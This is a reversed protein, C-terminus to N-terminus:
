EHEHGGLEIVGVQKQGDITVRLRGRFDEDHAVAKCLEEDVIEFRSAKGAAEGEGPAAKLVYKVFQGDGFVQLVIEPQSAPVPQQAASDLLHVTVRHADYDHVLEAHYQGNDLEVLHGGHPAVAPHVHAAEGPHDGPSSSPKPKPTPTAQSGCGVLSLSVALGATLCLSTLDCRM